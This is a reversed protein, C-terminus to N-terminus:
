KNVGDVYYTQIIEDGGSAISSYNASISGDAPYIDGAYQPIEGSPIISKYLLPSITGIIKEETTWKHDIFYTYGGQIYFREPETVINIILEYYAADGIIRDQLYQNPYDLDSNDGDALFLNDGNAITLPNKMVEFIIFTIDIKYKDEIFIYFYKFFDMHWGAPHCFPKIYKNFVDSDIDASVTYRFVDIEEIIVRTVNLGVMEMFRISQEYFLRQDETLTPDLLKAVYEQYQNGISPFLFVLLNILINYIFPTGKKVALEKSVRILDKSVNFSLGSDLNLTKLYTNFYLEFIADETIKNINIMDNFNCNISDQVKQINDLFAVILGYFQPAENKFVGPVLVDALDVLNKDVTINSFTDYM